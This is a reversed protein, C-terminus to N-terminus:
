RGSKQIKTSYFRFGLGTIFLVVLMIMLLISTDKTVPSTSKEKSTAEKDTGKEGSIMQDPYAMKSPRISWIAYLTTVEKEFSPTEGVFYIDGLGGPETSWGLFYVNIVQRNANLAVLPQGTSGYVTTPNKGPLMSKQCLDGLGDCSLGTGTISVSANGVKPIDFGYSLGDPMDLSYEIKCPEFVALFTAGRWGTEPEEPVFIPNTSVTENTDKDIWEVFRCGPKVEAKAGAVSIASAMSFTENSGTITGWEKCEESVAYRLTFGTIYEVDVVSKGDYSVNASSVQKGSPYEGTPKYCDLEGKATGPLVSIPSNIVGTMEASGLKKRSSEGSVLSYYDVTYKAGWMAYLTTDTTFEVNKDGPAYTTGTGDPKTNWGLFYVFVKWLSATESGRSRREIMMIQDGINGPVQRKDKISEGFTHTIRGIGNTKINEVSSDAPMTTQCHFSFTSESILLTKVGTTDIVPVNASYHIKPSTEALTTVSLLSLMMLVSLLIALMRKKM